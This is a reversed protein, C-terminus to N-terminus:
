KGKLLMKLNQFNGEPIKPKPPLKLKFPYFDQLKFPTKKEKSNRNANAFMTMIMSLPLWAEKRRAEAMDHLEALSFPDPNLGIIGALESIM